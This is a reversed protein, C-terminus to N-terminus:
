DSLLYSMTQKNNLVKEAIANTNVKFEGRSIQDKIQAIRDERQQSSLKNQPTVLNETTDDIENKNINAFQLQVNDVSIRKMSSSENKQVEQNKADNKIDTSKKDETKKQGSFKTEVISANISKIDM